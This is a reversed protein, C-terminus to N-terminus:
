GVRKFRLYTCGRGQRLAKTEYRTEPWDCPRARWESASDALWAFRPHAMLRELAWVLYGSDDTAFRFEAGPRMVRALESLMETQIFRRKHHRKKPWPDPFLVFVRALSADPLAAVIDHADESYLRINGIDKEAIRALLKAMGAVYPEAGIIGTDPHNEAQWLLHEGGGFGVELWIESVDKDSFYQAADLGPQLQLTLQPLLTELLGSQRASL